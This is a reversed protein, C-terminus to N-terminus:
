AYVWAVYYDAGVFRTHVAQRSYPVGAMLEHALTQVRHMGDARTAFPGACHDRKSRLDHVRAGFGGGLEAKRPFVKLFLVRNM